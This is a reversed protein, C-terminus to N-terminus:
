SYDGSILDNATNTQDNVLFTKPHISTVRTGAKWQMWFQAINPDEYPSRVHVFQEDGMTDIGFDLNDPATYILRSGTGFIPDSIIELGPAATLGRLHNLFVEWELANKYKLKNGLAEMARFMADQTMYLTGHQRLFPSASRLFEVLKDFAEMDNEDGPSEIPGTSFLNGKATAIDGATIEKNIQENFGDFMGMPSKDDENRSAFFLASLIDEGVTRIKSELILVEQPHQKTKNDVKEPRNSIVRKNRYNMIHDKLATYCEKPELVREFAKGLEEESVANSAGPTYPRAIGGKRHYVVVKDKGDLVEVLNIKVKDLTEMLTLYPMKRLVDDYTEAMRQLGAVNIATKTQEPM